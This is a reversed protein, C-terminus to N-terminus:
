IETILKEIDLYNSIGSQITKIRVHQSINFFGKICTDLVEGVIYLGDVIPIDIPTISNDIDWQVILQGVSKDFDIIKYSNEIIEVM